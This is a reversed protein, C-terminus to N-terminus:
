TPLERPGFVKARLGPGSWDEILAVRWPIDDDLLNLHHRERTGLAPTAGDKGAVAFLLRVEANDSTHLRSALAKKNDSATAWIWYDLGQLVLMDDRGIKTEVITIDGNADLGILDIFGRGLQRGGGSPRWAPLERVLPHELLLIEPRRRLLTQLHHEAFSGHKKNKADSMSAAVRDAIKTFQEDTLAANIVTVDAPSSQADIGAKIKTKSKGQITLVRQGNISWARVDRRHVPVLEPEATAWEVLRRVRESSEGLHLPRSREFDGAARLTAGRSRLRRMRIKGDAHTYIEIEAALWPQRQRTAHSWEEPLALVLRRGQALTLGHALVLDTYQGEHTGVVGLLAQDAEFWTARTTWGSKKEM